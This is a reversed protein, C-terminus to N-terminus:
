SSGVAPWRHLTRGDWWVTGAELAEKETSSMSPLLRRYIRLFPRTIFTQRLPKINLLWLAVLPLWVISRGRQGPPTGVAHLRAGARHLRHTGQLLSFRRYAVFLIVAVFLIFWLLSLM